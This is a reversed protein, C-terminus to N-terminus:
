HQKSWSGKEFSIGEQPKTERYGGSTEACSRCSFGLQNQVTSALFLRAIQGRLLSLSPCGLSAGVQLAGM